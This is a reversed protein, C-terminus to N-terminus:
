MFGGFPPVIAICSGALAVLIVLPVTAYAVATWPGSRQLLRSRRAFTYGLIGPLFLFVAFVISVTAVSGPSGINSSLWALTVGLWTLVYAGGIVRAVTARRDRRGEAADEADVVAWAADVADPAHGAAIARATLAERTYRGANSRLYAELRDRPPEPPAYGPGSWGAPATPTEAPPQDEPPPPPQQSM